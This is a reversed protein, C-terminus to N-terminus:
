LMVLQKLKPDAPEPPETVERLGTRPNKWIMTSSSSLLTHDRYSAPGFFTRQGMMKRGGTLPVASTNKWCTRASVPHPYRTMETLADRDEGNMEKISDDRRHLSLVDEYYNFQLHSENTRTAGGDRRISTRSPASLETQGSDKGGAANQPRMSLTSTGTRYSGHRNQEPKLQLVRDVPVQHLEAVTEPLQQVVQLQILYSQPESTSSDPKFGRLTNQHSPVSRWLDVQEAGRQAPEEGLLKRLVGVLGGSHVRQDQAVGEAVGGDEVLGPRGVPPARPETPPAEGDEPASTNRRKLKQSM